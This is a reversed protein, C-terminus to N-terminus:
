CFDNYPEEMAVKKAVNRMVGALRRNLSRVGSERTYETIIKKIVADSLKVQGAKLGHEERQEPIM